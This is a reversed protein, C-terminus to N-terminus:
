QCDLALTILSLFIKQFFAADRRIRLAKERRQHPTLSCLECSDILNYNTNVIEDQLVKNEYIQNNEM